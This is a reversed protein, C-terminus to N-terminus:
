DIDIEGIAVDEVIESVDDLTALLEYRGGSLGAVSAHVEGRGSHLQRTLVISDDADAAVARLTGTVYDFDPDRIEYQIVLLDGDLSEDLPRRLEIEPPRNGPAPPGREAGQEHWRLLIEQQRSSLPRKKGGALPPPMTELEVARAVIRDSVAAAGPVVRGSVDSGRFETGEDLITDEYVDLRLGDGASTPGPASRTPPFSHCSGCNALLIPRVDEAWTPEAPVEPDCGGGLAIAMMMAMAWLGRRPLKTM